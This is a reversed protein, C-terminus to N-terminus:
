DFDLISRLGAEECGLIELSNFQYPESHVFAIYSRIDTRFEKQVYFRMSLTLSSTFLSNSYPMIAYVQDVQIAYDNMFIKIDMPASPLFHLRKFPLEWHDEM